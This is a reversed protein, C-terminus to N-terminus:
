YVDRGGLHTSGQEFVANQLLYEDFPGRSAAQDAIDVIAPHRTYQRAHLGCEDIDSKIARGEQMDGVDRTVAVLVVRGCFFQGFDAVQNTFAVLQEDLDDLVGEAVFTGPQRRKDGQGRPMEHQQRTAGAHSDRRADLLVFFALAQPRQDLLQQFLLAEFTTGNNTGHRLAGIAIRQHCVELIQRLKPADNLFPAPVTRYFV